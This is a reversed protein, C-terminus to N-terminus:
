EYVYVSPLGSYSCNMKENYEKIRIDEKSSKMKPTNAKSKRSTKIPSTIM